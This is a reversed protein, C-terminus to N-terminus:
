LSCTNRYIISDARIEVEISYSIGNITKTPLGWVAFIETPVGMIAAPKLLARVFTFNDDGLQLHKNSLILYPLETTEVSISCSDIITSSVPNGAETILIKSEGRDFHILAKTEVTDQTPKYASQNAGCAVLGWLFCISCFTKIRSMLRLSKM